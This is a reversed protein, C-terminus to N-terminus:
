VFTPDGGIQLSVNLSAFNLKFISSNPWSIPSVANVLMLDISPSDDKNAKEIEAPIIQTAGILLGIVLGGLILAAGDTLLVLLLAVAAVIEIIEETVHSGQSQVINHVISPQQAQEFVLTQGQNSEGLGMQYWHTATCTATIGTAVPTETYSTLTLIQGNAEISLQKLVPYYIQGDNIVPTLTVQAGDKLTLTTGDASLNIDDVTLGRYAQCIAPRVLDYLTRRQSILFGAVSGNPIANPSVQESIDEGTRDGTMCLVAFISDDVTNGDLYAYSTYNPTVFGWAGQDVMRNLNVVAFVHAFTGLNNNCWNLLSEDFIAKTVIGPNGEITSEVLTAVPDDSNASTDRVVLKYPQGDAPDATPDTHPLYHLKIEIVARGSPFTLMKKTEAITISINSLPLALRVNKGDGGQTIQWDGFDASVAAYADANSFSRPSSHHDVIAQNVDAVPIAFATDWNYTEVSSDNSSNNSM